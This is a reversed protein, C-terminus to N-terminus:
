AKLDAPATVTRALLWASSIDIGAHTHHQADDSAVGTGNAGSM